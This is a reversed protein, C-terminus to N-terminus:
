GFSPREFKLNLNMLFHIIQQNHQQNKGVHRVIKTNNTKFLKQTMQAYLVSMQLNELNDRM